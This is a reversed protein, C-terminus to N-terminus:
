NELFDEFSLLNIENFDIRKIIKDYEGKLNDYEEVVLNLNDMDNQSPKDYSSSIKSSLPFNTVFNLGPLDM